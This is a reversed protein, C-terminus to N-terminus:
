TNTKNNFVMLDKFYKSKLWGGTTWSIFTPYKKNNSHKRDILLILPSVIYFSYNESYIVNFSAFIKIYNWIKNYNEEKSTNWNIMNMMNTLSSSCYGDKRVPKILSNLLFIADSVNYLEAVVDITNLKKDNWNILYPNYNVPIDSTKIGPYVRTAGFYSDLTVLSEVM